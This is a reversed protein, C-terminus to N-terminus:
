NIAKRWIIKKLYILTFHLRKKPGQYRTVLWYWSALACNLRWYSLWDDPFFLHRRYATSLSEFFTGQLPKVSIEESGLAALEVTPKRAQM